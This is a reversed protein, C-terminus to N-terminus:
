DYYFQKQKGKNEWVGAEFLSLDVNSDVEPDYYFGDEAGIHVEGNRDEVEWWWYVLCLEEEDLWFLM